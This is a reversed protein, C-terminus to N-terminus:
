DTADNKEGKSLIQTFRGKYEDFYNEILARFRNTPYYLNGGSNEDEKTNDVSNEPKESNRAARMGAQVSDSSAPLEEWSLAIQKFSNEEIEDLVIGNRKDIIGNISNDVNEIVDEIRVYSTYNAASTDSYFSTITNYIVFYALYLERNLKVGLEKRLEENTYGFVPNNQGASVYLSNKYEYIDLNMKKLTMMVIDYVQANTSYEQYLAANDGNEGVNEGNILKSVIDLARDLNRSEM